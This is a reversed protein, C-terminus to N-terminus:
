KQRTLEIVVPESLKGKDLSSWEARLHDDDLLHLVGKHMHLQDMSGNLVNVCEFTVVATDPSPLARMHPQNGLVCYHTLVLDPGDMHYVTQMEHPSGEFLTEVLASGGATAHYSVRPPEEVDPEAEGVWEGELKLLREFQQRASVGDAASRPSAAACGTVILTAALLKSLFAASVVGRVSGSSERSSM